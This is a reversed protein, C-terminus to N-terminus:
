VIVVMGEVNCSYSSLPLKPHEQVKPEMGARSTEAAIKVKTEESKQEFTGFYFLFILL